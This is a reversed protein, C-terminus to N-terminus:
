ERAATCKAIKRELELLKEKNERGFAYGGLGKGSEVVRHCPIIIPWPNNKLITGVRRFAKPSGAKQAVWKYSRTQGAPITAVISYVKKEFSTM